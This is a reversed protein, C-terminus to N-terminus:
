CGCKYKGLREETLQVLEWFLNGTTSTHEMSTQIRATGSRVYSSAYTPGSWCVAGVPRANSRVAYRRQNDHQALDVSKLLGTANTACYLAICRQVPCFFDSSYVHITYIIRVTTTFAHRTRTNGNCREDIAEPTPRPLKESRRDRINVRSTTFAVDCLDVRRDLSQSDRCRTSLELSPRQASSLADSDLMCFRYVDQLPPQCISM